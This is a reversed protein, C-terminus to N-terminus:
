KRGTSYSLFIFACIPFLCFKRKNWKKGECQPITLERIFTLPIEIFIYFWKGYLSLNEWDEEKHTIYKKKMQLRFLQMNEDFRNYCSKKPIKFLLKEREIDEKVEGIIQGAILRKEQTNISSYDTYLSNLNEDISSQRKLKNSQESNVGSSSNIKHKIEMEEDKLQNKLEILKSESIDSKLGNNMKMENFKIVDLELEENSKKHDQYIAYIIDIFYILVFGCSTYLNIKGIISLILLFILSLMYIILDRNFM